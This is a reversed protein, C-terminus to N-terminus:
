YEGYVGKKAIKAKVTRKPQLSLLEIMDGKKMSMKLNYSPYKEILEKKTFNALDTM